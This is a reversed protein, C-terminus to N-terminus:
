KENYIKLNKLIFEQFSFDKEPTLQNHTIEFTSAESDIRENYSAELDKIWNLGYGFGKSDKNVKSGQEFININQPIAESKNVFILDWNNKSKNKISVSFTSGDISYKWANDILISVMYTIYDSNLNIILNDPILNNLILNKTRGEEKIISYIIFYNNVLARLNIKNSMVSPTSHFEHVGTIMQIFNDLIVTSGVIKSLPNNLDIRKVTLTPDLNSAEQIITQLIPNIEHRLNKAITSLPIRPERVEIEGNRNLFSIGYQCIDFTGIETNRCPKSICNFCTFTDKQM